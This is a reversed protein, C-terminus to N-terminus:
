QGYALANDFAAFWKEDGPESPSKWLHLDVWRGQCAFFYNVQLQNQATYSVKILNDRRQVKVSEADILSSNGMNLWYFNYVPDNGPIDNAPRDVFLALNFGNPGPLGRLVFQNTNNEAAWKSFGLDLITLKWNQDPIPLSLYKLADGSPVDARDAAQENQEAQQAALQQSQEAQIKGTYAFYAANAAGQKEEQKLLGAALPQYKKSIASPLDAYKVKMATTGRQLVLGDSLIQAVAPNALVDGFKNTLSLSLRDGVGPVVPASFLPKVALFLIVSVALFALTQRM